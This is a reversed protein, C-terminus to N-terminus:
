SLSEIENGSLGKRYTSLARSRAYAHEIIPSIYSEANKFGPIWRKIYLDQPDFKKAQLAPNFVRFYPAADCGSGAAWQWGGNNSALEYDLLHAAFFAEGFRWDILLHKTLFSATVMRIRNHMFGTTTLERMGADVLPYGTRGSCWAAFDEERNLWQIRDYGSKFSRTVVSPYFYLIMQYFDRWILESLFTPNLTLALRALKRISLTGFRLHIGLRSTGMRDPYDRHLHYNSIISLDPTVQPFTCNQRSFGNLSKIEERPKTLPVLHALLSDSPYNPISHKELVKLWRSKYPTFVHYPLGNDKIVQDPSLVVHDTLRHFLCARTKLFGDVDRDRKISYPDYDVSAFVHRVSNEDLLKKFVELPIGAEVRFDFGQDALVGSLKNVERILFEVRLDKSDLGALIEQDFIFLPLVRCGSELARLLALNDDIRIDRRIWWIALEM